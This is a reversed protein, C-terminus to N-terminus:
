LTDALLFNELYLSVGNQSNDATVQDAADQVAQPANGMAVGIGAAQLMPLDNFHDGFALTQELSLGYIAALIELAHAKSVSRNTIELYNAKSLYFATEPFDEEQLFALLHAIDKEEGILLFKHVPIKEALFSKFTTLIPIEGTINAELDIWQNREAVHWDKGAYIGIAIEPFNEEILYVLREVDQAQIPIDHLIDFTQDQFQGILAGNYAVLPAQLGLEEQIPHIGLPSRASALCFPIEQQSLKELDARLRSDLQHEKDLVTGDIDSVILKIDRM